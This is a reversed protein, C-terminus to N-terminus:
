EAVHVEGAPAAPAPISSHYPQAHGGYVWAATQSQMETPSPYGSGGGHAQAPAYSQEPSHSHSSRASTFDVQAHPRAPGQASPYQLEPISPTSSCSSSTGPPVPYAYGAPVIAPALPPPTDPPEPYPSAYTSGPLTQARLDSPSSSPSPTFAANTSSNGNKSANGGISILKASRTSPDPRDQVLHEASTKAKTM